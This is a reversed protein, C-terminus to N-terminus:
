SIIKLLEQKGQYVKNKLEDPPIDLIASIDDYSLKAIDRLVIPIRYEDDILDIAQIILTRFDKSGYKKSTSIFDDKNQDFLYQIEDEPNVYNEDKSTSARLRNLEFNAMSLALQFLWITFARLNELDKLKKYVELFVEQTLIEIREKNSRGGLIYYITNFIDEKYGDVLKKFADMDGSLFKEILTLDTEKAM